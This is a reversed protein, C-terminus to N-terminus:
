YWSLVSQIHRTTRCDEGNWRTRMVNQSLPTLPECRGRAYLISREAVNHRRHQAYFDRIDYSRLQRHLFFYVITTRRPYYHNYIRSIEAMAHCHAKNIGLLTNNPNLIQHVRTCTKEHLYSDPTLRSAWDAKVVDDLMSPLIYFIDARFYENWNLIYNCILFNVWFVLLFFSPRLFVSVYLFLASSLNTLLKYYIVPAQRHLSINSVLVDFYSNPPASCQWLKILIYM